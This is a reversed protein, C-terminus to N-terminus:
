RPRSARARPAASCSRPRAGRHPRRQDAQRGDAAFSFDIFFKGAGSHQLFAGYITFVIILAATRDRAPPRWRFTLELGAPSYAAHLDFGPRAPM